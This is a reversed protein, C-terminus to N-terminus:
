QSIEVNPLLAQARLFDDKTTTRSVHVYRIAPLTQLVQISDQTLESQWVQLRKLMKLGELHRWQQASLTIGSLSLSELNALNEIKQFSSKPDGAFTISLERLNKLECLERFAIGDIRIGLDVSELQKMRSVSAVANSTMRESRLVLKKINRHDRIQELFHDTISDSSIDLTNLLHMGVIASSCQDSVHGVMRLEQLAPCKQFVEVHEDTTEYGIKLTKLSPLESIFRFHKADLGTENVELSELQLMGRLSALSAGELELENELDGLKLSVVSSLTAIYKLEEATVRCNNLEVSKLTKIQDLRSEPAAQKLLWEPDGSYYVGVIDGNESRDFFVQQDSCM